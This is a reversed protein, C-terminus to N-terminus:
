DSDSDSRYQESSHSSYGQGRTRLDTAIEVQVDAESKKHEDKWMKGPNDSFHIKYDLKNRSRMYSACSYCARKKGQIVAQGLYRAAELVKVLNVEAHRDGYVVWTGGSDIASQAEQATVTALKITGIGRQATKGLNNFVANASGKKRTNDRLGLMKAGVRKTVTHGIGSKGVPQSMEDILSDRDTGSLKKFIADAEGLSNGSLFLSKGASMAEVETIKIEMTKVANYLGISIQGLVQEQSELDTAYKRRPRKILQKGGPLYGAGMAGPAPTLFAGSGLDWNERTGPAKGPPAAASAVDSM